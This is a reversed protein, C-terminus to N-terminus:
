APGQRHFRSSILGIYAHSPPAQPDAMEVGIIGRCPARVEPALPIRLDEAQGPQLVREVVMHGAGNDAIIDIRLRVPRSRVDPLVVRASFLDLGGLDLDPFALAARPESMANAHLRFETDSVVKLSYDHILNVHTCHGQRKRDLLHITAAESRVFDALRASDNHNMAPHLSSMLGTALAIQGTAMAVRALDAIQKDRSTESTVPDLPFSHRLALAERYAAAEASRNHALIADGGLRRVAWLADDLSDSAPVVSGGSLRPVRATRSPDLNLDPILEFRAGAAVVAALFDHVAATLPKRFDCSALHPLLAPHLLVFGSNTSAPTQMLATANGMLFREVPGTPTHIFWPEDPPLPAEAHRRVMGTVAPIGRAFCTQARDFWVADPIADLSCVAVAALGEADTSLASVARAMDAFVQVATDALLRQVQDPQGSLVHLITGPGLTPLIQRVKAATLTPTEDFHVQAIIAAVASM